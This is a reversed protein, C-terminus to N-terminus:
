SRPSFNEGLGRLVSIHLALWMSRSGQRYLLVVSISKGLGSVLVTKVSPFFGGGCVCFGGGSARFGIGYLQFCSSFNKERCSM